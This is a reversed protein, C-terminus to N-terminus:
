YEEQEVVIKYLREVADENKLVKYLERKIRNEKQRTLMVDYDRLFTVLLEM